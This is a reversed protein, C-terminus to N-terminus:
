KFNNLWNSNSVKKGYYQAGEITFHGYDYFVKYGDPTIGDCTELLSNCILDKKDLTKINYTEAIVGLQTNNKDPGISQNKYYINKLESESFNGVNNQVYWDFIPLNNIPKFEVTHLVLSVKKNKRILFDLLTPIQRITNQTYRFSIMVSTAAQFNPSNQLRVLNDPIKERKIELLAFEYNPYLKKNLYFMNWLDKGHSDGIILVKKTKQNNSFLHHKSEFGSLLEPHYGNAKSLQRLFFWSKIALIKNDFENIGYILQLKSFRSQYGNNKISLGVFLFILITSCTLSLILHKKLILSRNKFPKEVFNYTLISLLFCSVIWISKEIITPNSDHLRSFAFIPYHWLYLSYSILGVSTFLKSSLINSVWEKKNSFSIILSTGLIIPLTVLGPHNFNFQATSISFIILLLGITPLLKIIKNQFIEDQNIPFIALLGGASLEWIRTPLLYFSASHLEASNFYEALTISSGFLLLLFTRIFHKRYKLIMFLLIPYFLYYQEEVALSWTHLFPKLLASEVGYEQMISHWYFNSSFLLSAALSYSFDILQTPLLLFWAVPLSTLVVLFLAPLLRRIRREYFDGIFRFINISDHYNHLIISTILYGSIVFFVDVGLFGGKLIKNSGIFFEAHYILVSLVAITRLGDIEPRYTLTKYKCM